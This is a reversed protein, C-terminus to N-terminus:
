LAKLGTLGFPNRHDPLRLACPFEKQPPYSFDHVPTVERSIGYHKHWVLVNAIVTTAIRATGRINALATLHRIKQRPNIRQLQPYSMLDVVGVVIGFYELAEQLWSTSSNHDMLHNDREALSRSWTLHSHLRQHGVIPLPRM